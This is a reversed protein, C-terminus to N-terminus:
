LPSPIQVTEIPNKRIKSNQSKLIRLKFFYLKNTKKKKQYELGLDCLDEISEELLKITKLKINLDTFTLSVKTYPTLCLDSYNKDGKPLWYKLM